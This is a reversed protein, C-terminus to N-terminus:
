HSLTQLKLLNTAELLDEYKQTILRIFEVVPQFHNNAKSYKLKKNNIM